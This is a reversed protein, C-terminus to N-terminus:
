TSVCWSLGVDVSAPIIYNNIVIRHRSPSWQTPDDLSEVTKRGPMSECAIGGLLGAVRSELQATAGVPASSDKSNSDWSELHACFDLDVTGIPDSM